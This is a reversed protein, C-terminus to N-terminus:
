QPIVPITEWGIAKAAVLRHNGDSIYIPTNGEFVVDLAYEEPFESGEQHAFVEMWYRIADIHEVEEPPIQEPPNKVLDLARELCLTGLPRYNEDCTDWCTEKAVEWLADVSFPQSPTKVIM